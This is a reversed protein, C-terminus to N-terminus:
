IKKKIDLRTICSNVKVTCSSPAIQDECSFMSKDLIVSTMIVPPMKKVWREHLFFSDRGMEVQQM